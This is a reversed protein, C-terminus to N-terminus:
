NLEPSLRSLSFLLSSSPVGGGCLATRTKKERKKKKTKKKEVRGGKKKRRRRNPLSIGEEEEEETRRRRRRRWSGRTTQPTHCGNARDGSLSLSLPPHLLTTSRARDRGGGREGGRLLLRRGREGQVYTRYYCHRGSLPLLSRLLLPLSPLLLLLAVKWNYACLCLFFFFLFTRVRAPLLLLLLPDLM